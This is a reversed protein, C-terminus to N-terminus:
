AHAEVARLLDIWLDLRERGAVPNNDLASMYGVFLGNGRYEVKGDQAPTLPKQVCFLRANGYTRMAAVLSQMEDETIPKTHQKYVFTKEGTELDAILKESLFKLRRQLSVLLKGEEQEGAYIFTHMGFYRTDALGYEGDPNLHLRLFEPSGVGACRTLLMKTLRGPGTNSWRMLGMPEAGAQRQVIGFECNNGLGEFRMMMDRLQLDEVNHIVPPPLRHPTEDAEELSSALRVAGLGNVIQPMDPYLAAAAEWRRIAEPWDRKRHAV